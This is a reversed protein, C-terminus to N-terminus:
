GNVGRMLQCIYFIEQENKKRHRGDRFEWNSTDVCCDDGGQELQNKILNRSLDLAKEFDIDDKQVLLNVIPALHYENLCNQFKIECKLEQALEKKDQLSQGPAHDRVQYVIPLTKANGEVACIYLFVRDQFTIPHM